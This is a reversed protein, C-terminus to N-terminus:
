CVSLVGETAEGAGGDIYGLGGISRDGLDFGRDGDHPFGM